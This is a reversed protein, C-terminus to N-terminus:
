SCSGGSHKLSWGKAKAYFKWVNYFCNEYLETKTIVEDVGDNNIDLQDVFTREMHEDSSAPQADLDTLTLRYSGGDQEAIAFLRHTARQSKVDFRGILAQGVGKRLETSIVEGLAGRELLRRALGYEILWQKALRLLTSKEAPTAARRTSLHGPIQSTTNAALRPEGAGHYSIAASLESGEGDELFSVNSSTVKAAGLKSGGSFVSLNSGPQYFSKEFRAYDEATAKDPVPDNLSPVVKGQEHSGYHVIVVPVISLSQGDVNHRVAFIAVEEPLPTPTTPVSQASATTVALLLVTSLAKIQVKRLDNYPAQMPTDM